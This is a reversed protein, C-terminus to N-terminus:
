KLICVLFHVFLFPFLSLPITSLSFLAAVRFSALKCAILGYGPNSLHVLLSKHPNMACIFLLFFPINITKPGCPLVSSFLMPCSSPKIFKLGASRVVQM